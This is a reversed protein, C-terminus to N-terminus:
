YEIPPDNKNSTLRSLFDVAVNDKRPKNLIIIDCEELLLFFRTIRGNIIPKNMLYKIADHHTHLIILYRTIYHQFENVAHIIVLFYKKTVTYNIEIPSINKSVYYIAYTNKGEM